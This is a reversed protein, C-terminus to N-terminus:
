HPDGVSLVMVLYTFARWNSCVTTRKKSNKRLEGVVHSLPPTTVRRADHHSFERFCGFSTISVAMTSNGLDTSYNGLTRHVQLSSIPKVSGHFGSSCEVFTRAESNRYNAMVRRVSVHDDILGEV